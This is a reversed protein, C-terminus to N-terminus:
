GRGDGVGEVEVTDDGAPLRLVRGGHRVLVTAAAAWVLLVSLTWLRWALILGLALAAARLGQGGAAPLCLPTLLAVMGGDKLLATAPLWALLSAIAVGLGWAALVTAGDAASPLLARIVLILAVGSLGLVLLEQILLRALLGLRPAAPAPQMRLARALLALIRGFVRPHLGFLSLVGAALLWPLAAPSGGISFPLAALFVLLGALGLVTMELLMATGTRLAGIGRDRYYAVRTLPAWISGPLVQALATLSHGQLHEALGIAGLPDATVGADPHTAGLIRRWADVALLWGPTQVLFALGLLRPQLRFSSAAQSDLASWAAHAAWVLGALLALGVLRWRRSRLRDSLRGSLRVAAMSM